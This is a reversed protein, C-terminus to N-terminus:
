SKVTTESSQAEDTSPEASPQEKQPPKFLQNEKEQMWFIFDHATLEGSMLGLKLALDFHHNALLARKRRDGKKLYQDHRTLAHILQMSLVIAIVEAKFVGLEDKCFVQFRNQESVENINFNYGHKAILFAYLVAGFLEVPDQTNIDVLDIRRLLSLFEEVKNSDTFLEEFGPIVAKFVGLDHMEWLAMEPNYLRFFKLWEERRRPLVTKKLEEINELISKRLETEIQFSLKQSLRIARLIRIPDEKIRVHPDGIVRLTCSEIDQLGGCYDVLEESLPDYFLANVTFDRRFSDEKLNGFFNDASMTPAAPLAPDASESINLEEQTAERRYTAVEFIKEGRKAHVLKFRRGIIFCYPVKKKVENPLANTAIDFDKPKLGVLLDRVGGGVLYGDYKNDKLKKIIGIAHPDIDAYAKKLIAKFKEISM